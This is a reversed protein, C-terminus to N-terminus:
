NFVLCNGLCVLVLLLCVQELVSDDSLLQQLSLLLPVDYVYDWARKFFYRGKRTVRVIRSGLKREM